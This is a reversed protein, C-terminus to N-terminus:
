ADTEAQGDAEALEEECDRAFKAGCACTPMAGNHKDFMKKSITVEMGCEPCFLTYKNIKKETQKPKPFVVANGPWDGVKKVTADLADKLLDQLYPSPHVEKYPEEFYYKEALKKFRKGKSVGFFAKICEHALNAMITMPDAQKFDLAITTPFFQEYPLDEVDGPQHTETVRRGKVRGWSCQYGHNLTDLDGEFVFNDLEQIAAHIWEEHTIM